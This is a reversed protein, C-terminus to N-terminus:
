TNRSAQTGYLGPVPRETTGNSASLGFSANLQPSIKIDLNTNFNFREAAEQLTTGKEKNYGISFYYNIGDNAGSVSLTHQHSFANRFLLKYWDTNQEKLKKVEQLFEQYSIENNFVKVLLAEYGVSIPQINMFYLGREVMEESVEIREKSNMLHMMVDLETLYRMYALDELQQIDLRTVYTGSKPIVVILGDTKLRTLVSRITTRSTNYTNSLDNESILQGPKLDLKILEKRILQYIRDPTNQKVVTEMDVCERETKKIRGDQISSTLLIGSMKFFRTYMVIIHICTKLM